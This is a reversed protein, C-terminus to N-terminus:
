FKSNKTKPLNQPTLIMKKSINFYDFTASDGLNDNNDFSFGNTVGTGLAEHGIIYSGKIKLHHRFGLEWNFVGNILHDAYNNSDTFKNTYDRYDGQYSISFKKTNRQGQISFTPKLNYYDSGVINTNHQFFVNDNHGYDATVTSSFDLGLLPDIHKSNQFTDNACAVHSYTAVLCGIVWMHKNGVKFFQLM